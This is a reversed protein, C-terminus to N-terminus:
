DGLAQRLTGIVTADVWWFGGAAYYFLYRGDPSLVPVSGGREIGMEALINVPTSWRDASDRFSVFIGYGRHGPWDNNFVVFSEDPAVYPHGGKFQGGPRSIDLPPGLWETDSWGAESRKIRRIGSAYLTGDHTASVGNLDQNVEEELIHPEGWYEAERCSYWIKGVGWERTGPELQFGWDAPLARRSSFYLRHGSPSISIEGAGSEDCISVRAPNTWGTDTRKVYMIFPPNDLFDSAWHTWYIESADPSFAISGHIAGDLRIVDPAFPKPITDPPTQGLYDIHSGQAPPLGFVPEDISALVGAMGIIVVCLSVSLRCKACASLEFRINKAM